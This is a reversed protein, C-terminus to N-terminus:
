AAERPGPRRLSPTGSAIAGEGAVLHLRPLSRGAGGRVRALRQMLERREPRSLRREIAIRMARRWDKRSLWPGGAQERHYPAQAKTGQRRVELRMIM